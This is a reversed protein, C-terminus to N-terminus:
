SFIFVFYTKGYCKDALKSVLIGYMGSLCISIQLLKFSQCEQELM